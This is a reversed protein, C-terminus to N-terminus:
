NQTKSLEFEAVYSMLEDMTLETIGKETKVWNVLEKLEKM